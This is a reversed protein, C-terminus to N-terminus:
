LTVKFWFTDRIISVLYMTLGSAGLDHAEHGTLKPKYLIFISTFYTLAALVWAIIMFAWRM